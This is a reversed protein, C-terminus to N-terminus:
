VPDNSIKDNPFKFSTTGWGYVNRMLFKSVELVTRARARTKDLSEQMAGLAEAKSRELDANAANSAQCALIADLEGNDVWIGGCKRCSDLKVTSSYNYCYTDLPIRCAPCQRESTKAVQERHPVAEKEVHQVAQEGQEMLTRLEGDDFWIGGCAPCVDLEIGIEFDKTLLSSCAPCRM